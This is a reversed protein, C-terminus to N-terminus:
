RAYEMVVFGGNERLLLSEGNVLMVRTRPLGPEIKRVEVAFPKTLGWSLYLLPTPAVQLGVFTPKGPIAIPAACSHEDCTRVEYTEPSTHSWVFLQTATCELRSYGVEGGLGGAEHWTQGADKSILIQARHMVWYVDGAACMRVNNNSVDNSPDSWKLSATRAVAKGDPALRAAEFAGAHNSGSVAVVTGDPRVRVRVSEDKKGLLPIPPGVTVGHDVSRRVVILDEDAKEFGIIAIFPATNWIGDVGDIPTKAAPKLATQGDDVMVTWRKKEDQSIGVPGPAPWAWEALRLPVERTEWTKGDVTRALLGPKEDREGPLYEVLAGDEVVFIAHDDKQKPAIPAVALKKLECKPVPVTSGDIQKAIMGAAAALSELDRCFDDAYALDFVVMPNLSPIQLQLRDAVPQIADILVKRTPEGCEVGKGGNAGLTAAFNSTFDGAQNGTICGEYDALKKKIDVLASTDAPDTKKGCAAVVVIMWFWRTM